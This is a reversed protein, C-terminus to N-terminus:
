RQAAAGISEDWDDPRRPPATVGRRTRMETALLDVWIDLYRTFLQADGTQAVDLSMGRLLWQTLLMLESLRHRAGPLPEFYHEAALNITRLVADHLSELMQALSADRYSAVQLELSALSLPASYVEQWAQHVLGRLRDDSDAMDLLVQGLKKYTRQMQLRAADCMLAAKSPFHHLHAGRSVGATRVIASVSTNSYGEASLCAITAELLRRRMADSRETQTRRAAPRSRRTSADDSGQGESSSAPSAAASAGTEAATPDQKM